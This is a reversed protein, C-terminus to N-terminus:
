LGNHLLSLLLPIRRACPSPRTKYGRFWWRWDSASELVVLKNPNKGAEIENPKFKPHYIHNGDKTMNERPQNPPIGKGPVGWGLAPASHKYRHVLQDSAPFLSLRLYYLYRKLTKISLNRLCLSLANEARCSCVAPIEPMPHKHKLLFKSWPNTLHRDTFCFWAWFSSGLFTTM